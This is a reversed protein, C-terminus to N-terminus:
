VYVTTAFSAAPLTDPGLLAAVPVTGSVVLGVAGPESVAVAAEALTVLWTM